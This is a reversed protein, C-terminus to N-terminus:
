TLYYKLECSWKMECMVVYKDELINGSNWNIDCVLIDIM